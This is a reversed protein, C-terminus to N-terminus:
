RPESYCVRAQMALRVVSRELNLRRQSKRSHQTKILSENEATKEEDRQDGRDAQQHAGGEDAKGREISLDADSFGGDGGKGRGLPGKRV